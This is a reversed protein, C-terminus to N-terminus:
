PEGCPVARGGTTTEPPLLAPFSEPLKALSMEKITNYCTGPLPALQKESPTQAFAQLDANRLGATASAHSVM